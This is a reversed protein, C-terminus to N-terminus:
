TKKGKLEEWKHQTKKRILDRVEMDSHLVALIAASLEHRKQKDPLAKLDDHTYIPHLIAM